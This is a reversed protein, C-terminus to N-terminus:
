FEDKKYLERCPCPLKTGLIFGHPLRNNCFSCVEVFNECHPCVRYKIGNDIEEIEEEHYRGSCDCQCRDEINKRGFHPKGCIDCIPVIIKTM